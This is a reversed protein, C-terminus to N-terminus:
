CPNLLELDLEGDDRYARIWANILFRTDMDDPRLELWLENNVWKYGNLMFDAHRITEPNYALTPADDSPEAMLKNTKSPAIYWEYELLRQLSQYENAAGLQMWLLQDNKTKVRVWGPQTEYVHADIGYSHAFSTLKLAEINPIVLAPQTNLSPHDFLEINIPTEIRAHTQHEGETEILDDSYQQFFVYGILKPTDVSSYTPLSLASALLIALVRMM